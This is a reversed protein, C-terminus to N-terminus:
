CFPAVTAMVENTQVNDLTQCTAEPGVFHGITEQAKALKSKRKCSCCKQCSYVCIAGIFSGIVVAIAMIGMFTYIMEHVENQLADDLKVDGQATESTFPTVAALTNPEQDAEAQAQLFEIEFIEDEMEQQDEYLQSNQERVLNEIRSFRDSEGAM